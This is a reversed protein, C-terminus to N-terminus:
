WPSSWRTGLGPGLLIANTLMQETEAMWRRYAPHDAFLVAQGRGVGERVAYATRAIRAAAEPWVLGGRHLRAPDMFLAGVMVPPVAIMTDDSGFWVTAEDGLGFNLWAEPDLEVGLLAGQPMFRRLREDATRVDGEEPKARGAPLVPELWQELDLPGAGLPKGQDHGECFPLAGPGVVPAVDYLAGHFVPQPGKADGAAAQPAPRLGLAAPRGADQAEQAAISWVPPPFDGLADSRFRTGVLGLAPDALLRAGGAMGIATGGASVWEKLRALGQEGLIQRYMATGGRIPPFVLVNYRALDIRNFSGLDLSNFRLGLTEDLLHWVFGFESPSVPSGSFVGLRPEVLVPYEAGGLDPGEEARSTGVADMRVLLEGQIAALREHLDPVNGERRVVLTGPFYSRGGIAFPKRAVRVTVGEQFLRVLIRPGAPHDVPIIVSSFVAPVPDVAPPLSREWRMWRGGPFKGAWYASVGRILPLSWATTDYLRSGKGKELYEREDQFFTSDMPVHPDLIVRALAGQPQDLRVLLSGAPLELTEEEGTVAHRLGSVRASQEALVLVEVGQAELQAGLAALRDAHRSGAPFVWAKVPGDTGAAVADGRAAIMDALVQPANAALTNLNALSSTAQHDVAQAFTRVTGDRKHLLTGTTRSMEYLIGVAGLYKAYSSGYGPFFEENWEGSFYPYGRGDLARAQDDSFEREWRAASAPLHPNYPHRAPPFLYTANGGMEHSDVMLQPLWTAIVASRRSEPHVLSFWDRNLDFLYHNGRGWPWVGAHSLDDQDPNPTAHAFSAIQALYRARGDPNECPDILIVLERRLRLSEEDTGAVLRYALAAAADTSSLEDGHIGYALWAVAKVGELESATPTPGQRPDLRAAHRGLFGDLDAVTGSDSVALYVLPRGEHTRAYTRLEALPSTEALRQFYAVVEEPRLPREAPRIGAFDELDPVAPDFTAGPFLDAYSMGGPSAAVSGPSSTAFAACLIALLCLVRRPDLDNM